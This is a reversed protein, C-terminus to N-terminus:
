RRVAALSRLHDGLDRAVADVLAAARPIERLRVAFGHMQDDAHWSRVPVGAAALAAAWALGEDRLPDFEATAMWTAPLGSLDDARAPVLLPDDRTVGPPAYADFAWDM